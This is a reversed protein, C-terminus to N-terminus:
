ATGGEAGHAATTGTAAGPTTARAAQDDRYRRTWTRLGSLCLVLFLSYVAATVWLGSHVAMPVGVLDVAIWVLWFEMLGRSLAITAAVSGVFIFADFLPAWSQGTYHLLAAVALTGVLALAGLALRERATGPRVRVEGEDRIGRTWKWWGYCVLVAVMANKLANGVFGVDISVALLLVAGVLQVPWTWVTRRSALWVAGLAGANGLLDAWRVREGFLDFGAQAWDLWGTM